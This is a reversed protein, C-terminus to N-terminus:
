LVELSALPNNMHYYAEDVYDGDFGYEEEEFVLETADYQETIDKAQTPGAGPADPTMIVATAIQAFEMAIDTWDMMYLDAAMNEIAVEMIVDQSSAAVGAGEAYMDAANLYESAGYLMLSTRIKRYVKKFDDIFNQDIDLADMAYIMTLIYPNIIPISDIFDIVKSVFKVFGGLIKGVFTDWFGSTHQEVGLNITQQVLTIAELPTLADWYAEDIYLSSWYGDSHYYTGEITPDVNYFSGSSGETWNNVYNWIVGATTNWDYENRSRYRTGYRSPPNTFYTNDDDGLYINAYVEADLVSRDSLYSVSVSGLDISVTVTYEYDDGYIDRSSVLLPSTSTITITDAHNEFIQTSHYLHGITRNLEETLLGGYVMEIDVSNTAAIKLSPLPAPAAPAPDDKPVNIVFTKSITATSGLPVAPFLDDRFHAWLADLTYLRKAVLNIYTSIDGQYYVAAVEAKAEDDMGCLDGLRNALNGSFDAVNVRGGFHPKGNLVPLGTCAVYAAKFERKWKRMGMSGALIYRKYSGAVDGNKIRLAAAM